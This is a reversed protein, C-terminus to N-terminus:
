DSLPQFSPLLELYSPAPDNSIEFSPWGPLSTLLPPSPVMDLPLAAESSREVEGGMGLAPVKFPCFDCSGKPDTAGLVGM